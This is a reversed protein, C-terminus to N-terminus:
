NLVSALMRRMARRSPVKGSLVVTDDVVLAPTLVPGYTAIEDLDRVHRVKARNPALEAAVEGALEALRDCHRCGPGLIVIRHEGTGSLAEGHAHQASSLARKHYAAAVELAARLSEVEQELEAVRRRLAEMDADHDDRAAGRPSETAGEGVLLAEVDREAIRHQGGPMKAARLAGSYIYRKVTGPAVRLRRAAEKVTLYREHGM